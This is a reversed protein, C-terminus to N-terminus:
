FMKNKEKQSKKESKQSIQFFPNLEISYSPLKGKDSAKNLWQMVEFIHEDENAM